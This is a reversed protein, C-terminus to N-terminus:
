NRGIIQRPNKHLESKENEDKHNDLLSKGCYICFESDEPLEKHCHPCVKM